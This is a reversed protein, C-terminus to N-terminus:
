VTYIDGLSPQSHDRRAPETLRPQDASNAQAAALNARDKTHRAQRRRIMIFVVLGIILLVAGAAIAIIMVLNENLFGSSNNNSDPPTNIPQTQAQTDLDRAGLTCGGTTVNCSSGNGHASLCNAPISQIDCGNSSCLGCLNCEKCASCGNCNQCFINASDSGNYDISHQITNDVSSMDVTAFSCSLAGGVNTNIQALNDHLYAGVLKIFAQSVVEIAPAQNLLLESADIV